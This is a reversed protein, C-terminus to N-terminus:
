SLGKMHPKGTDAAALDATLAQQDYALPAQLPSCIGLCASHHLVSIADSASMFGADQKGM